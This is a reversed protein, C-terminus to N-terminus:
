GENIVPIDKDSSQNEEVTPHEWHPPALILVKTMKGFAMQSVIHAKLDKKMWNKSDDGWEWTLNKVTTNNMTYTKIEGNALKAEFKLVKKQQGDQGTMTDWKGEDLLQVIDGSHINVGAKVFQTPLEIRM